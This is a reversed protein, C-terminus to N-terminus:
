VLTCSHEDWIPFCSFCSCITGSGLKDGNWIMELPNKKNSVYSPAQPSLPSDKDNDKYEDKDKYKHEKNMKSCSDDYARLFHIPKPPRPCSSTLNLRTNGYRSLSRVFLLCPFIPSSLWHIMSPQSSCYIYANGFRKLVFKLLWM